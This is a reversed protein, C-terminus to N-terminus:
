GVLHRNAWRTMGLLHPVLEMGKSTIGYGLGDDHSVIGAERLERLRSNLTTPSLDDCAEQLERFLLCGDRLEWLVRLTWRRGILDLLVMVPRKSAASQRKGM